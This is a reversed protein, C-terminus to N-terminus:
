FGKEGKPISNKCIEESTGQICLGMQSTAQLHMPERYKVGTKKQILDM